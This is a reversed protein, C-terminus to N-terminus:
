LGWKNMLYSEVNERELTTLVKDFILIEAIDGNFWTPTPFNSNTFGIKLVFSSEPFRDMNWNKVGDSAGNTYFTLTDSSGIYDLLAVSLTPNGDNIYHQGQLYSIWGIDLGVHGWRSFLTKGGPAWNGTAPSRSLLTGGSTTKFVTVITADQDTNIRGSTEDVLFEHSNGNFTLVPLGNLANTVYTPSSIGSSNAHHNHGSLDKWQTVKNSADKIISNSENADLWLKLNSSPFTTYTYTFTHSTCSSTNLGDSLKFWFNNVGTSLDSALNLTGSGTRNGKSSSCSSETYLYITHDTDVGSISISPRITSGPNSSTTSLSVSGPTIGKNRVWIAMTKPTAGNQTGGTTVFGSDDTFGGWLTNGSHNIYIAQFNQGDPGWDLHNNFGPNTVLGYAKGYSVGFTTGRM